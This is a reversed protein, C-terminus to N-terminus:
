RRGRKNKKKPKAPPPTAVPQEVQSRLWEVAGPTRRWHNLHGGAYAVAEDEGGFTIYNPMRNPLRKRGTLYDPVHRNEEVAEKLLRNVDEYAGGKRFAVLARSYLWTAMGGDYQDLLEQAEDDRKLQLLLSIVNDRVGQNDGPNLRLMDRFHALAEENRNLAWLCHAYGERARMYPRTELLGWFYGEKEKFYDKGVARESAEIGKHYYDMAKGQTDAEEQALLVYADACDPSISLAKRALAIRRAPNRENWAQYMVDQAQDLKKDGFGGGFQRMMGEMGRRDFSHLDLEGKEDEEEDEDDLDNWDMMAARTEQPLIGGPYKVTVEAKGSHVPVEFKAETPLLQGPKDTKLYEDIFIPIARLAAEYWILDARSPRKAKGSRTYIMPLPYADDAAVDWNYQQVADLDDFPLLSIEDFLFSNGGDAPLLELPSDAPQYVREVDEWRLYMAMGYEEGAGGMIQVFHPKREPPVTIALPYNEDLQVWPKARYFVAAAAFVGGALDPTVGKVSLLGSLEAEGGRMTSELEGVIEDLPDTDPNYSAEVGIESLCPAIMAMLSEDSFQVCKPRGPKGAGKVPKKMGNFIVTLVQEPNPQAPFMEMGPLVGETLSVLM